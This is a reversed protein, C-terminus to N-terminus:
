VHLNVEGESTFKIANHLLNNLIQTLRVPDGNIIEPIDSQRGLTLKLQKEDASHRFANIVQKLLNELNFDIKELQIKGSEIKSFDLINNILSLLNNASFELIKLNELQDKSPNEAMLLHTVGFVANLPTRIEHSMVSLFEQRTRSLEEAKEKAEKLQNEEKKRQTIDRVIGTFILKGNKSYQGFSVEIPILSGDKRLGTLETAQWSINKKSTEIYRRIGKLHIHRFNEPMLVTLSKGTLEQPTYGFVKETAKNVFDILSDENITIIADSATEALIRYREESEKLALAQKSETVDQATGSMKVPENKENVFVEGHSSIIRVSGDPKILRHTFDFPQHDALAKQIAGNVLEKDEPHLYKLYNEYSAEFEQPTLGFIKFLEDSWKILNGPIDWEWSGIHALRQAEALQMNTAKIKEEALKRDNINQELETTMRNFSGALMGIEDQSYIKARTSFDGKAISNASRIIESIGKAIGRSVSITLLLGSLEVTLAVIFLLKLILHELWRSGEGLTYSFSDELVTLQQNIPDIEKLIGDIKEHSPQASNIETHLREGIPTLLASVDDAEGWIRIAKNIYYINHFRRFLKIMGDIDDPHNRGELFGQRAIDLDPNEKLLEMLTKHDGLPVKMFDRFKIFDSEDHSRGYIRLQYVADKQAKSWLGEGGVYGRVASLSNLAFWLTFLEMAILLAMIGMTFYLKKAISVNRLRNIM